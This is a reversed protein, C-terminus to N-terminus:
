EGTTITIIMSVFLTLVFFLEIMRVAFNQITDTSGALFTAILTNILPHLIVLMTLGGIGLWIAVVARLIIFGKKSKVM